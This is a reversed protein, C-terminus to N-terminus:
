FLRPRLSVMPLPKTILSPHGYSAQNVRGPFLFIVPMYLGLWTFARWSNFAIFSGLLDLKLSVLSSQLSLVRSQEMGSMRPMSFVDSMIRGILYINRSLPIQRMTSSMRSRRNRSYNACRLFAIVKIKGNSPLYLKRRLNLRRTLLGWIQVWPNSIEVSSQSGSFIIPKLYISGDILEVRLKM